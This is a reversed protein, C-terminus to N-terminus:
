TFLSLGSHSPSIYHTHSLTFPCYVFLKSNMHFLVLHRPYFLPSIFIAIVRLFSFQFPFFNLRFCIIKKLNMLHTMVSGIHFQTFGGLTDTCRKRLSILVMVCCYCCCSSCCCCCYCCSHQRSVAGLIYIICMMLVVALWVNACVTLDTINSLKTARAEAAGM